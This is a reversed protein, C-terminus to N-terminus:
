RGQNPKPANNEPMKPTRPSDGFARRKGWIVRMHGNRHLVGMSRMVFEHGAPGRARLEQGLVLATEPLFVSEGTTDQFNGDGIEILVSGYPVPDQLLTDQLTVQNDLSQVCTERKMFLQCDALTRLALADAREREGSALKAFYSALHQTMKAKLADPEVTEKLVPMNEGNEVASKEEPKGPEKRAFEPEERSENQVTPTPKEPCGSFLCVLLFFVPIVPSKM